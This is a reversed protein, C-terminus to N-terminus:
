DQFWEEPIYNMARESSNTDPKESVPTRSNVPNKPRRLNCTIGDLKIAHDFTLALDFGIQDFLDHLV